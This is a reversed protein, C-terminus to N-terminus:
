SMWINLCGLWYSKMHQMMGNKLHLKLLWCKFLSHLCRVSPLGTSVGNFGLVLVLVHLIFFSVTCGWTDSIGRYAEMLIDDNVVIAMCLLIQLIHDVIYSCCPIVDLTLLHCLHQRHPELGVPMQTSIVGGILETSRQKHINVDIVLELCCYLGQWPAAAPRQGVERHISNVLPQKYQNCWNGTKFTKKRKCPNPSSSMLLGCM